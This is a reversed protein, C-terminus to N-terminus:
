VFIMTDDYKENDRLIELPISYDEGLKKCTNIMATYYLKKWGSGAFKVHKNLDRLRRVEKLFLKRFDDMITKKKNFYWVKKDKTM